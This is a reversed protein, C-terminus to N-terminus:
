CCESLSFLLLLVCLCTKAHQWVPWHLFDVHKLFHLSKARTRQQALEIRVEQRMPLTNTHANHARKQEGSRLLESRWGALWGALSLWLYGALWGSACLLEGLLAAGDGRKPEDPERLRQAGKFFALACQSACAVRASIARTACAIRLRWRCRRDACPSVRVCM